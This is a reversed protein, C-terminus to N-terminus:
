TALLTNNYNNNNINYNILKIIIGNNGHWHRPIYHDGSFIITVCQQNESKQSNKM